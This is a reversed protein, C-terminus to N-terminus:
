SWAEDTLLGAWQIDYATLKNKFLEESGFPSLLFMHCLEHM